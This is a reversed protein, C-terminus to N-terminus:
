NRMGQFVEMAIRVGERRKLEERLQQSIKMFLMEPTQRCAGGCSLHAGFELGDDRIMRWAHKPDVTM